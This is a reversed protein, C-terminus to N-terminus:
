NEESGSGLQQMLTSEQAKAAIRASELFGVRGEIRQLATDFSVDYRTATDRLDAVEKRLANVAALAERVLQAAEGRTPLNM